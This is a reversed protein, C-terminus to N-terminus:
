FNYTCWAFSSFSYNTYAVVEKPTKFLGLVGQTNITQEYENELSYLKACLILKMGKQTHLGFM